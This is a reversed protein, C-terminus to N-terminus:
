SATIRLVEITESNPCFRIYSAAPADGALWGRCAEKNSCHACRDLARYLLTESERTAATSPDVGQRALMRRFLRHSWLRQALGHRADALTPKQNISM